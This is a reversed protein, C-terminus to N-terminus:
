PKPRLRRVDAWPGTAVIRDAVVLGADKVCLVSGGATLIVQTEGQFTASCAPCQNAKVFSAAPLARAM